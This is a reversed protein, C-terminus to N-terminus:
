HVHVARSYKMHKMYENYHILCDSKYCKRHILKENISQSTYTRNSTIKM